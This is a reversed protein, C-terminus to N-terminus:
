AAKKAPKSLLKSLVKRVKDLEFPKYIYSDCLLSAESQKDEFHINVGGTMLIFKPVYHSNLAKIEKILEMGGMKPMKMDSIILDYSTPNQSYAKLAEKGNAATVTSLGFDNLVDSLLECILPEDDVIMAHGQLNTDANKENKNKNIDLPKDIVDLEITFTTGFNKKSNFYIKGGHEQIINAVLALGIGTGKNVTKTTFFPDFIKDQINEPIGMGSDSIHIFATNENLTCHVKIEKTKSEEVADKANSILNMFVQQMRGRNGSIVDKDKVLQNDLTINIGERRYIEKVMSVSEEISESLSFESIDSSDSRSFTRLGKTITQIRDVSIRMKELYDNLEAAVIKGQKTNKIIRQLYGAIIALPNNIEHGVGAALEGIAALKSHHMLHHELKRRDKIDEVISWIGEIGDYDDIRFGNIEVSIHEGNKRLYEKRYHERYGKSIISQNFDKDTEIYKLPTLDEIPSNILEENSYGVIEAFKKNVELIKGNLDTFVFGVTAKEFFMRLKKKQQESQTVDLHTGTFRIAKGNEDYESIKGKALVYVWHGDKHRLRHTNEYVKTKGNLYDSIRIESIKKDDPHVLSEWATFDNGLEELKLGLMEAWRRDYKVYNNELYWDWIGIQSADLALDLYTQTETLDLERKKQESIDQFTGVVKTVENKENLHPRGKARVWKEKGHADVFEFVEDYSQKLEITNQVCKTIREREHEKYYSIGDIMNTPTNHPLGYIDYVAKTWITNGTTVDLEWGGTSAMDQIDESLQISQDYSANKLQLELLMMINKALTKLSQKQVETLSRPKDDLVCLTGITHGDSSLLPAGAYFVYTTNNLQLPKNKFRADQSADEIIFLDKQMIAHHCYSIDRPIESINTGYKSKFWQRQKDTISILAIKTQCIQAALDTIEDFDSGSSTMLDKYAGIAKQRQKETNSPEKKSM